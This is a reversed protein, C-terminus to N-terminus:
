YNLPLGEKTALVEVEDDLEIASAYTLMSLVIGDTGDGFRPARKIINWMAVHGFAVYDFPRNTSDLAKLM